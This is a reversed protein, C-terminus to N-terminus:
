LKDWNIKHRVLWENKDKYPITFVFMTEIDFIDVVDVLDWKVLLSIISMKRQIDDETITSYGSQNLRMLFLEKFHYVFFRSDIDEYLYCSPYLIKDKKNAIGIRSLTEIIIPVEVKPIVEINCLDIM